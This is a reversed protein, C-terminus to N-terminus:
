AEALNKKRYQLYEKYPMSSYEAALKLAEKKEKRYTGAIPREAHGEEHVFWRGGKEKTVEYVM